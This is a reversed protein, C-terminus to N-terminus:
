QILSMACIDLGNTNCRGPTTVHGPTTYKLFKGKVWKNSGQFNWGDFEFLGFSVIHYQLNSGSGVVYDYIPIIWWRQRTPKALWVTLSDNVQNSNEVGPGSCIFDGVDWTGSDKVQNLYDVLDQNSSACDFSLWQFAGSGTSQGFLQYQVGYTFTQTQLTMPMLHNGETMRGSQVGSRSLISVPGATGSLVGMLFPTYSITGNVLVGTADSPVGYNIGVQAGTRNGYQDIFYATVDQTREVGNSQAYSNIAQLISNETSFSNDNRASLIRVGAFAAADAANQTQRKITYARGGDIILGLFAVLGVM